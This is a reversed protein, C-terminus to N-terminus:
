FTVGAKLVYTRGPLPYVNLWGVRAPNDSAIGYDFYDADFLNNVAFSWFMKDVQGSLKIDATVGDPMRPHMNAQDNDFRRDAWGRMLADVVLYKGWVNWSFGFTGSYRAVLPVDNGAYRGEEFVARTTAASGMLRFSENVIFTANAEVGYRHTPDLNYNYFRAPNPDLHIENKLHMDYASAQMALPGSNLRVGAELDHSTQTKLTFTQPVSCFCGLDFSPGTAIREDVNPTRFSRAARGFVALQDTLRHEIGLHWAHQTENESKPIAQIDFAGPATADYRDGADFHVSQLRGGYSFDTTPLVSVTQQWYGAVSRQSLDYTHFPNQGEFQSRKSNYTADYYDLGTRINSRMGFLSHDINLRPTLSWTQLTSDVYRENFLTLFTGQQDKNRVGGDIILEAGSWLETSFGTTINVGQKEGHDFPTAAGKRATVYENINQPPTITRGGPLGLKQDDASLNLFAGFGPGKYQIDGVVNAQSLQNNVRYGDSAIGNAFLAAAFPGLNGTASVNGETSNFSGLGAEGRFSPARGLGTKTVINIVGGVANDGYLVAGSNGRTVEIRDISQLPLTSLDVGQLDADNIRRGNILILTNSSAFAGFGRLDVVSGAGNVGGYLNQLQVGPVSALVDQVTRGPSREIDQATVITTSAGTIAPFLRTAYVNIAPLVNQAQASGATAACVLGTTILFKSVAGRMSTTRRLRPRERRAGNFWRGRSPLARSPPLGGATM